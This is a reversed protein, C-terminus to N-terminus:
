PSRTFCDALTEPICSASLIADKLSCNATPTHDCLNSGRATGATPLSSLVTRDAWRSARWRTNAVHKTLGFRPRVHLFTQFSRSREDFSRPATCHELFCDVADVDEKPMPKAKMRSDLIRRRFQPVAWHWDRVIPQQHDECSPTVLTESTKRPGSCPASAPVVKRAHTGTIDCM